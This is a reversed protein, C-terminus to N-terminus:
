DCCGLWRRPHSGIRRGGGQDIKILEEGVGAERGEAARAEARHDNVRSDVGVMRDEPGVHIQVADGVFYNVLVVESVIISIGTVDIAVAAM